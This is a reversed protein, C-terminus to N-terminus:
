AAVGTATGLISKWDIDELSSVMNAGVGAMDSFASMRGEIGSTRLQSAKNMAMMYPSAEDWQWQAKEEDAQLGMANMYRGQSQQVLQALNQSLGRMQDQEGQVLKSVAGFAESGRGM